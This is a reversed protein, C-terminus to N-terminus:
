RQMVASEVFISMKLQIKSEILGKSINILLTALAVGVLMFFIPLLNESLTYPITYGFIGENLYPVMLSILSGVLTVVCMFVFDSRQLTGMMYAMLDKISLAKNPLPKYFCYCTEGLQGANKKTISVKKGTRHDKYTYGGRKRPILAVPDGDNKVALMVMTADKWWNESLKVSRKMVGVPNLLYYLQDEFETVEEPLKAIPQGYYRLIEEIATKSKESASLRKFLGDAGMVVSSLEYFSKEFAEEDYQIREKMAENYNKM